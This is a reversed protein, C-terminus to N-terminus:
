SDQQIVTVTAVTRIHADRTWEAIVEVAGTKVTVDSSDM